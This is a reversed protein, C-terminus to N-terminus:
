RDDVVGGAGGSPERGCRAQVMMTEKEKEGGSNHRTEDERAVVDGNHISNRVGLYKDVM